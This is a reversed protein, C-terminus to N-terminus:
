YESRVKADRQYVALFARGMLSTEQEMCRELVMARTAQIAKDDPAASAAFEALHAALRTPGGEALAAAALSFPRSGSSDASKLETVPL